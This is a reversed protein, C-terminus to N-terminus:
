VHLCCAVRPGCCGKLHYRFFPLLIKDQFFESTNSGFSIDGLQNGLKDEWGGHVWPGMVLKEDTDPSQSQIARYTKLTGSLDEADFWGGVVLVAPKIQRLHPLINRSKWFDDYTTHAIADEWYPNSDKFSKSLNSIPGARLYFRYGDKTGYGFSRGPPPVLPNHQRPYETYFSFNAILFFAGNHYSDDGMYLDSVPAQPSAAALAPHADIMGASAYFGPYSIGTWGSKATTAPSM